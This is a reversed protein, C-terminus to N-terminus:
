TWCDFRIHDDGRLGAVSEPGVANRICRMSDRTVLTLNHEWAAAAIWVDNIDVGNKVLHEETRTGASAPPLLQWIGAVIKGYTLRTSQSIELPYNNTFTENVWKIFDRRKQADTTPNM